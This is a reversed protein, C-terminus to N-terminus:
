CPIDYSHIHSAIVDAKVKAGGVTSFKSNQEGVSVSRALKDPTGLDNQRRCVAAAVDLDHPARLRGLEGNPAPLRTVQVLAHGPM